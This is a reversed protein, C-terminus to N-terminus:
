VGYGGQERDGERERSTHMLTMPPNELIPMRPQLVCSREVLRPVPDPDPAQPFVFRPKSGISPDMSQNSSSTHKKVIVIRYLLTDLM